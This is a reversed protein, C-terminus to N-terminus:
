LMLNDSTGKILDQSECEDSDVELSDISEDSYECDENLSNKEYQM